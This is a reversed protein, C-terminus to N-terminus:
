GMLVEEIEAVKEAVKRGKETLSVTKSFPALESVAEDILGIQILTDVRLQPAKTSKSVKNYLISRFMKGEKHLTALIRLAYTAELESLPSERTM